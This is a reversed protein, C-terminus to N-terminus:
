SRECIWSSCRSSLAVLSLSSFSCDCRLLSFLLRVCLFAVEARKDSTAFLSPFKSSSNSWLVLTALGCLSSPFKSSPVPCSSWNFTDEATLLMREGYLNLITRCTFRWCRNRLIFSCTLLSLIKKWFISVRNDQCPRASSSASEADSLECVVCDRGVDPFLFILGSLSSVPTSASVFLWGLM